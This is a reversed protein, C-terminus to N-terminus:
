SLPYIRKRKLLMRKRARLIPMDLLRFIYGYLMRALDSVVLWPNSRMGSLETKLQALDYGMLNLRREGIWNLYRRCWAKRVPNSLQAKWKELPQKSLNKYNKIGTPDGWQGTLEVETFKELEFQESSLGLYDLVRAMQGQPDHILKEYSVAIAKSKHNEYAQSLNEVGKYLDIYYRYLNWRNKGWTSIISSVVALPNRWLFIFKADPFAEIIEEAILHYRPTKELFYKENNNTLKGYIRTAVRAIDKRYGEEGGEIKSFIEKTGTSALNVSYEAFSGEKKTLYFLPLLLWTESETAVDPHAAVLRQLLTSGTRPLSFIFIPTVTEM